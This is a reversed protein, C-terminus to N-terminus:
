FNIYNINGDVMKLVIDDLSPLAQMDSLKKQEEQVQDLILQKEYKIRYTEKQFDSQRHFTFIYVTFLVGLFCMWIGMLFVRGFGFFTLLGYPKGVKGHGLLQIKPKKFM